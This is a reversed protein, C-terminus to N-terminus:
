LDDLSVKEWSEPEDARQNWYEAAKRRAEDIGVNGKIKIFGASAGCYHCLVVAVPEDFHVGKTVTSTLTDYIGVANSGCFPCLKLKCIM